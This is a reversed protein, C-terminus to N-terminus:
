LLGDKYLMENKLSVIKRADELRGETIAVDIKHNLIRKTEIAIYMNLVKKIRERDLDSQAQLLLHSLLMHTDNFLSEPILMKKSKM